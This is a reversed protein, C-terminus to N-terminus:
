ITKFMNKHLYGYYFVIVLTKKIKQDDRKLM